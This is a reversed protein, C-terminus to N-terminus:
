IKEVPPSALNPSSLALAIRSARKLFTPLLVLLTGMGAPHSTAHKEPHILVHNVSGRLWLGLFCGKEKSIM